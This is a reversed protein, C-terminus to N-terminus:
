IINSVRNKDLGIIMKNTYKMNQLEYIIIGDEDKKITGIIEGKLKNLETIGTKGEFVSNQIHNLYRRCIKLVKNVRKESIDYTLIVFM